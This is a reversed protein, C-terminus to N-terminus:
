NPREQTIEILVDEGGELTAKIKAYLKDFALRSEQVAQLTRKRGVLICGETDSTTNGSHIRIGEFNPVDMLWPLDRKFRPSYTIKIRYAGEPIATDGPIKEGLARVVDELTYCEFVGDVFLQGLTREEDVKDRWLLMKM